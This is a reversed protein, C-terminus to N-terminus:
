RPARRIGSSVLFVRGSRYGNIGSYASTILLDHM